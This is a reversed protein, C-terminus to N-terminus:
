FSARFITPTLSVYKELPPTLCYASARMRFDYLRFIRFVDPRQKSVQLENRTIYFPTTAAGNTTKVELWLEQEAKDGKGNFSLIDFGYGDGDDRAVWRVSESLDNRGLSQLRRKEHEYVLSEGAKGLNRNRADREAPNEFRRIIREIEESIGQEQGGRQPPAEVVVTADVARYEASSERLTGVEGTLLKYLDPKENVHAEVTEFLARQFNGRPRYGEIRPLGLAELVASINCHKFEISGYSRGTTEMLARRHAAKNFPQGMQEHELMVFYDKVIAENESESWTKAM